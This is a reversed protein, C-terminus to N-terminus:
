VLHQVFDVDAPTLVLQQQQVGSQRRWVFLVSKWRVQYSFAVHYSAVGAFDERVTMNQQLGVHPM